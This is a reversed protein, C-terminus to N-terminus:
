SIQSRPSSREHYELVDGSVAGVFREFGAVSKLDFGRFLIAGYEGLAKEISARNNGAWAPLDLDDVRPRMVLPLQQGQDLHGTTVLEAQSLRVAKRPARRFANFPSDNNDQGPM